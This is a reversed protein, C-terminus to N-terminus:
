EVQYSARPKIFDEELANVHDPTTHELDLLKVQLERYVEDSVVYVNNGERNTRLCHASVLVDKVSLEPEGGEICYRTQTATFFNDSQINLIRYGYITSYISDNDKSFLIYCVGSALQWRGIEQQLKQEQILKLEANLQSQRAYLKSLESDIEALEKEILRTQNM